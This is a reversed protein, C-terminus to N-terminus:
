EVTFPVIDFEGIAFYGFPFNSSNTTNIVNGRVTAPPVGFGGDASSSQVLAQDVYSAFQRDIGLLTIALLDGPDVNEYFYSFTLSEDQYFEDDTVLYNDFGFAFLYYNRQNPIDAFTVIVETEKEEDFFFGDGQEVNEIQGTPELQETARYVEDQYIIELTYERGFELAPFGSRFVGPEIEGLPFVEGTEEDIIQVIADEVTPVEQDFFNATLTLKVQGITLPNGDNENYGILADVVLRTESSTLEM